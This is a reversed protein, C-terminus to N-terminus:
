DEKRSLTMIRSKINQKNKFFIFNNKIKKLCLLIIIGSSHKNLSLKRNSVLRLGKGNATIAKETYLSENTNANIKQQWFM